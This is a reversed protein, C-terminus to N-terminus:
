CPKLWSRWTLPKGFIIKFMSKTFIDVECHGRSIRHRTLLSQDPHFKAPDAPWFERTFNARVVTVEFSCNARFTMVIPQMGYVSEEPAPFNLVCNSGWSAANNNAPRSVSRVNCRLACAKAIGGTSLCVVTVFNFFERVSPQEACRLACM